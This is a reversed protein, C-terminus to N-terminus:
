DARAEVRTLTGEYTILRGLLPLRVEVSVQVGNGQPKESATVQPALFSPLWLRCPGLRLAVAKTLYFLTGDAVDLQFRLENPGMHETLLGDAQTWQMSVLLQPGFARKWEERSGTPTVTLKLDVADCEAPLRALWALLRAAINSGRTVRFTGAAEVVAGQTHLRRVPEALEHWRPGLIQAYLGPMTQQIPEVHSETVCRNQM